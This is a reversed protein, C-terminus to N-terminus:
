QTERSLMGDIIEDGALDASLPRGCLSLLVKVEKRILVPGEPLSIFERFLMHVATANAYTIPVMPGELFRDWADRKVLHGFSEVPVESGCCEPHAKLYLEPSGYSRIREEFPARAQQSWDPNPSPNSIREPEFMFWAHSLASKVLNEKARRPDNPLCIENALTITKSKEPPPPLLIWFFALALLFYMPFKLIQWLFMKMKSTFRSAARNM